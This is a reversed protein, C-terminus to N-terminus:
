KGVTKYDYHYLPTHIKVETKIVGSDHIQRSWIYDEGSYVDPFKFQQAISTRIPSIHNNWRVYVEKGNEDKIAKYENDKSIFWDVRNAGNTTMWGCMGIADPDQEAATMISEIYSPEIKDDSDISVSLRGKARQYLDNRKTGTPTEKGDIFSLIEVSDEYGGAMIQRRLETVLENFQKERDFTSPILISLIIESM